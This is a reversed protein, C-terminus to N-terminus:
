AHKKKEHHHKWNVLCLYSIVFVGISFGAGYFVLHVEEIPALTGALEGGFWGFPLVPLIPTMAVLAMTEGFLFRFPVYLLPYLSVALLWCISKRSLKWNRFKEEPM